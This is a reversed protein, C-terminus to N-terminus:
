LINIANSNQHILFIPSRLIMTQAVVNPSFTTHMASNIKQNTEKPLKQVRFLVRSTHSDDTLGVKLEVFLPLVPNVTELQRGKDDYGRGEAACYPVIM